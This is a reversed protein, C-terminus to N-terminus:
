SHRYANLLIWERAGRVCAYIYPQSRSPSFEMAIRICAFSPFLPGLRHVLNNCLCFCVWVYRAIAFQVDSYSKVYIALEKGLGKGSKRVDYIIDGDNAAFM